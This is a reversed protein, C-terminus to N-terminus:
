APANVSGSASAATRPQARRRNVADTEAVVHAEAAEPKATTKALGGSDDPLGPM